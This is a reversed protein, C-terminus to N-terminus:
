RAVEPVPLVFLGTEGGATGSAVLWRGDPSWPGTWTAADSVDGGGFPRTDWTGVRRGDPVSFAVVYGPGGMAVRTADPSWRLSSWGKPPGDLGVWQGDVDDIRRIWAPRGEHAPDAGGWAALWQGDPSTSILHDLPLVESRGTDRHYLRLPINEAGEVELAVARVGDPGHIPTARLMDRQPVGFLTSGVEVVGRDASLLLPGRDWSERVLYEGDGIWVPDIYGDEYSIRQWDVVAVPPGGAAPLLETRVREEAESLTSTVVVFRGGPSREENPPAPDPTATALPSSDRGCVEGVRWESSWTDTGSQWRTDIEVRGDSRWRVPGSDGWYLPYGAQVTSTCSVGTATDLFHLTGPADVHPDFGHGPRYEDEGLTWYALHRGDPSWPAGGNRDLWEIGSAKAAPTVHTAGAALTATPGLTRTAPVTPTASPAPTPPLVTPRPSCAALVVLLPAGLISRRPEV